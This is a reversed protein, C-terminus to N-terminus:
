KYYSLLAAQRNRERRAGLAEERSSFQYKPRPGRRKRQAEGGESCRAPPRPSVRPRGTRKRKAQQAAAAPRQPAPPAACAETESGVDRGWSMGEGMLRAGACLQQQQQHQHQSPPAPPMAPWAAGPGHLTPLSLADALGQGQAACNFGAVYAALLSSAHSAQQPVPQTRQPGPPQLLVAGANSDFLWTADDLLALADSGLVHTPPTPASPTLAAEASFDLDDLLDLLGDTTPPVGQFLTYSSETASPTAATSPVYGAAAEICHSLGDLGAGQELEKGAPTIPPPLAPPLPPPLSLIDQGSSISPLVNPHTLVTPNTHTPLPFSLCASASWCPLLCKGTRWAAAAPVAITSSPCTVPQQQQHQQQQAAMHSAASAGPSCPLCNAPLGDAAPDSGAPMPHPTSSAAPWM